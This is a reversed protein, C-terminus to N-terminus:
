GWLANGVADAAARTRGPDVHGYVDKTVSIQSHGLLDKVEHLPVDQALMITAASHRLQHLNRHGLGAAKCHDSFWKALNAPDIVTGIPTTFVWDDEAWSRAALKDAAQQARHSQLIAVCPEPLSVTRWSDATKPEGVILKTRRGEPYSGDPLPTNQVRKISRGIRVTRHALGLDSWKLALVEGRRLGLSLTLVYLAENRDGKVQELLQRAEDLDLWNAAKRSVKVPESLRVVNRGVVGAREADHLAKRLVTRIIRLTNSSYGAQDKATMLDDVDGHNLKTLRIRGLTPVLHLRVTDAYNNRTTESLAGKAVRTSLVSRVWHNLWAEVTLREDIVLTGDAASNHATRLKDAVERRTRGYVSKRQRKGNVFGLDLRAEWRGDPRKHIGGEGKGRRRDAM